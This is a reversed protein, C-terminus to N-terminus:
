PRGLSGEASIPERLGLGLSGLMGQLIEACHPTAYWTSVSLYTSFEEERWACLVSQEDHMKVLHAHASSKLTAVWPVYSETPVPWWLRPRSVDAELQWELLDLSMRLGRSPTGTRSLVVVETGDWNCREPVQRCTMNWSAARTGVHAFTEAICTWRWSRVAGRGLPQLALSCSGLPVAPRARPQNANSLLHLSM